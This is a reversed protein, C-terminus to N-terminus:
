PQFVITTADIRNTLQGQEKMLDILKQLRQPDNATPFGPMTLKKAVAPDVNRIYSPLVEEVKTRDGAAIGQAKALARQFAAATKPYKKSWGDLAFYGDMPIGTVPAAGGDVAMRAGLKVEADTLFPENVHIADLDGKQMTAAMQPFVVQRYQIQAPDVGNQKAIANLTIAQINNLVHVSVSHGALDKISKIPSGPMVLVAMFKPTLTTGEAILNIPLDGKDHGLLMSADNAFVLDIAGNKLAPYAQPSAQVPQTEVTLGEAEFLKEKVAIYYPANTVLSLMAVKIKSKELGSGSAQPDDSDGCAVLLSALLLLVAPIRIRNM